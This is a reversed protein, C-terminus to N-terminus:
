GDLVALLYGAFTGETFGYIARGDCHYRGFREERPTSAATDKNDM